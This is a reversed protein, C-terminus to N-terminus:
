EVYEPPPPPPPPHRKMFFERFKINDLVQFENEEPKLEVEKYLEMLYHFLMRLEIPEDKFSYVATEVKQNEFEIILRITQEDIVPPFYDVKLSDLDINNIKVDINFLLEESVLGERYGEESTSYGGEFYLNGNSDLEFFMSPCSGFCISSNFGIRKFKLNNKKTIKKLIINETSDNLHYFLERSDKSLPTLVLSNESLNSIRFIYSHWWKNIETQEDKGILLTDNRIEFIRKPGYTINACVSDEFSFSIREDANVSKWDGKINEAFNNEQEFTCSATFIFLLTFIFLTKAKM